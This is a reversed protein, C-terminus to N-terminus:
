PQGTHKSVRYEEAMDYDQNTVATHKCARLHALRQELADITPGQRSGSQLAARADYRVQDIEDQSPM